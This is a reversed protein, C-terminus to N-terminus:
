EVSDGRCSSTVFAPARQNQDIPPGKMRGSAAWRVWVVIADLTPVVFHLHRVNRLTVM